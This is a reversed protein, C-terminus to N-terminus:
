RCGISLGECPQRSVLSCGPYITCVPYVIIGDRLCEDRTSMCHQCNSAVTDCQDCQERNGISCDLWLWCFYQCIYLYSPRMLEITQQFSESKLLHQYAVTVCPLRSCLLNPPIMHRYYWLSTIMGVIARKKDISLWMYHVSVVYLM